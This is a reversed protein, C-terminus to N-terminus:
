FQSCSVHVQMGQVSTPVEYRSRVPYRLVDSRRITNSHLLYCQHSVQLPKNSKYMGFFRIGVLAQRRHRLLIFLRLHPLVFDPVPLSRVISNCSSPCAYDFFGILSAGVVTFNTIFRRPVVPYKAFKFEWPGVAPFLVCGIVLMAIMSALPMESVDRRCYLFLRM